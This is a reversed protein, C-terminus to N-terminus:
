EEKHQPHRAYRDALSAILTLGALGLACLGGIVALVSWGVPKHSIHMAIAAAFAGCAILILAIGSARTLRAATTDHKVKKLFQM